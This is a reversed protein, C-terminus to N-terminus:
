FSKLDLDAVDFKTTHSAVILMSSAIVVALLVNGGVWGGEQVVRLARLWCAIGTGEFFDARWRQTSSVLAVWCKM